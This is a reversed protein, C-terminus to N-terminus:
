GFRDLKRGARQLLGRGGLLRVGSDDANLNKYFVRFIKQTKKWHWLQHPKIPAFITCHLIEFWKM